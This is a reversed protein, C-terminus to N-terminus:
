RPPARETDEDQAVLEVLECATAPSIVVAFQRAAYRRWLAGDGEDHIDDAHCAAAILDRLRQLFGYPGLEGRCLGSVHVLHVAWAAKIVAGM